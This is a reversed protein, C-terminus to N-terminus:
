AQEVTMRDGAETCHPALVSLVSYAKSGRSHTIGTDVVGM